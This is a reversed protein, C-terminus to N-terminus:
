EEKKILRYIRNSVTGEDEIVVMMKPTLDVDQWTGLGDDSAQLVYGKYDSSFNVAVGGAAGQTISLVPGIEQVFLEYGNTNSGEQNLIGTASFYTSTAPPDGLDSLPMRMALTHGAADEVTCIRDSWNTKGWGNTNSLRVGDLRVRMGQYYEGGTARTADFIASNDANKLDELSIGEAQPVGVNAKVLAVDFNNSTTTRHAKNINLKGNYFLAKRATVEVLDGKRFKRGNGDYMVRQMESNWGAEDYNNGALFSMQAMYLATGGRDGPVAAQIFLQYQGGNSTGTAEPNYAPPLMEEPDNVIVGRITFPFNEVWASTGNTTVAQLEAHTVVATQASVSTWWGLLVWGVAWGIKKM